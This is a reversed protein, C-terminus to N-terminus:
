PAPNIILLPLLRRIRRFNMSNTMVVLFGVRATKEVSCNGGVRRRPLIFAQQLRVLKEAVLLKAFQENFEGSHRLHNAM